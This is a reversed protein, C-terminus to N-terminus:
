SPQEESRRACLLETGPCIAVRGLHELLDAGVEGIDGRGHTRMPAHDLQCGAMAAGNDTLLRECFVQDIRLGHDIRACARAHLQEDMFIEAPLCWDTADRLLDSSCVDSSWDSIRM